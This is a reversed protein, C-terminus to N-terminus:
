VATYQGRSVKKFLKRHKLLAQNVITRFNAANTKYGNDQVAQTADTVSMTKGSLTKALAEPLTMTNSARTRGAGGRGGRGGGTAGLAGMQAEIKAVKAMLRDRKRMLAPLKRQRKALEKQLATTTLGALSGGGGSARKAM